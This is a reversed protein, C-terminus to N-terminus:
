RTLRVPERTETDEEDLLKQIAEFEEESVMPQHKGLAQGLTKSGVIGKYYPNRLLRILQSVNFVKGTRSRLGDAWMFDCVVDLPVNGSAYSLFAERLHEFSENPVFVGNELGSKYGLPPTFPHRGDKICAAMGQKTRKSLLGNDFKDFELYLAQILKDEPTLGFDKYDPNCYIIQVAHNKLHLTINQLQKMDRSLRDPRDVLLYRADPHNKVLRVYSDSLGSSCKTCSYKQGSMDIIDVLELDMSNAKQIINVIQKVLKDNSNQTQEVSATRIVAIAKPKRQSSM